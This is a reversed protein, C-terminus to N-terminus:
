NQYRTSHTFVKSKCMEALPELESAVLADIREALLPFRSAGGGVAVCRSAIAALREHVM